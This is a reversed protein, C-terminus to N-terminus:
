MEDGSSAEAGGASAAPLSVSFTSGEGPVSQLDIRAGLANSIYQVIALGLGAGETDDANGNLRVFQEFIRAQDAEAIGRGSDIVSFKVRDDEIAGHCEISGSDTYRLANQLLNGLLRLLLDPDTIVTAEGASSSWALGKDHCLPSFQDELVQVIEAVEVPRPKMDFMGGEFRSLDMLDDFQSTMRSISRRQQQLIGVASDPLDSMLLTDTLMGVAHLPQKIDHSAAAMFFAKSRTAAHAEALAQETKEKQTEVEQLLRNKEFRMLISERFIRSANRVLIYSLVTDIALGAGAAFGFGPVTFWYICPQGLLLPASLAFSKFDSFLNVMVGLSFMVIALTVYLPGIMVESSPSHILWIGSGVLAQNVISSARLWQDASILEAESCTDLRPAIRRSYRTRASMALFAPVVWLAIRGWYVNEYLLFPIFLIPPVVVGLLAIPAVTVRARLSELLVVRDQESLQSGSAEM